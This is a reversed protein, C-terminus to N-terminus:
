ISRFSEIGSPKTVPGSKLRASLALLIRRAKAGASHKGLKEGPIVGKEAVQQTAGFDTLSAFPKLRQSFRAAAGMESSASRDM